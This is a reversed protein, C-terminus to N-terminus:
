VLLRRNPHPGITSCPMQRLLAGIHSAYFRVGNKVIVWIDTGAQVVDNQADFTGDIGVGQKTNAVHRSRRLTQQTWFRAMAPISMVDPLMSQKGSPIPHSVYAAIGNGTMGIILEYQEM